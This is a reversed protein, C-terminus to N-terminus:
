SDLGHLIRKKVVGTCCHVVGRGWGRTCLPRPFLVCHNQGGGCVRGQLRQRSRQWRAQVQASRRPIKRAPRPQHPVSVVVRNRQRALAQRRIRPVRQQASGADVAAKVPGHGCFLIGFVGRLHRVTETKHDLCGAQHCIRYHAAAAPTAPFLVLVKQVRCQCQLLKHLWRQFAQAVLCPREYELEARQRRRQQLRLM